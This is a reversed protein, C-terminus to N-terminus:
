AKRRKLIAEFFSQMNGSWREQSVMDLWVAETMPERTIHIDLGAGDIVKFLTDPNLGKSRGMMPSIEVFGQQLSKQPLIVSAMGHLAATEHGQVDTKLVTISSMDAILGRSAINDLSYVCVRGVERM